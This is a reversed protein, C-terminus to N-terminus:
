SVSVRGLLSPDELAAACGKVVCTMPDKVSVVPMGTEQSILSPLGLLLSTGGALTIGNKIIDSVLEPPTEEISDKIAEIIVNIPNLLGERLVKAPVKVTKPLGTSLDRGRLLASVDEEGDFSAASGANIKAEEASGEGLLLNFQVKAHNIIAKDMADGAVRISKNVVIGSLSIVAIECTGGGIDVIMLGRPKEVPLGAGIAAAMPEELLYARGAGASLAADVVARREVPTVGSPIGLVIKPKILLPIPGLSRQVKKIFYSLMGRTVDFDSIVGGSLPRIAEINGPTKGIMLKAGEGVALIQRTNKNLAVVSPERIVIGRGPIYVLTNATGLDIAMNQSLFSFLGNIM